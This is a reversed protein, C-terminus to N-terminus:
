AADERRLPANLPPNIAPDGGQVMASLLGGGHLRLDICDGDIIVPDGAERANKELLAMNEIFGRATAVLTGSTKFQRGNCSAIWEQQVKGSHEGAHQEGDPSFSCDMGHVSFRRYGQSYMLNVARCGVSGGGALLWEDPNKAETPIRMDENSNLVNWLTLDYPLLRDIVEPHCCSAMWYKVDPHPNRTFFGKHLRPDVDVHIDPVVGRSILFAHAGSVTVIVNGRQREVVIEPWTRALSPGYCVITASGDHAPKIPLRRPTKALNIVAQELRITESVASITKIDGVQYLRQAVAAIERGDSSWSVIRFFRELQARWWAADEILLHANRGDALTKSSPRTSIALFVGKKALSRIHELVNLIKDREVHELVDTCVVLDAPRPPADKGAIAPDYERLWEANGLALKLIGKGCGYDLVTEAEIEAKLDSVQQSWRFSGSGYSSETEHLKVNLERYEDTIFDM